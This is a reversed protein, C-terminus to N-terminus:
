PMVKMPASTLINRKLVGPVEGVGEEWRQDKIYRFLHVGQFDPTLTAVYGRLAKVLEEQTIVGGVAARWEEFAKAKPGRRHLNWVVDFESPYVRRKRRTQKKETETEGEPCSEPAVQLCEALVNSADDTGMQLFGRLALEQLAPLVETSDRHVRFAIDEIDGKITGDNSESGILWLQILLKSAYDSLEAFARDDLLSRHLKIWPPRRAKYHQFRSWNKITVRV